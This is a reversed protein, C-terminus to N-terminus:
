ARSSRPPSQRRARNHDRRPKNEPPQQAPKDPSAYVQAVVEDRMARIFRTVEEIDHVAARLGSLEIVLARPEIKAKPLKNLLNPLKTLGGSPLQLVPLTTEPRKIWVGHALANRLSGLKELATKAPKVHPKLETSFSLSRVQMLDEIMTLYEHARTERISLRGEAQNVQLIAYAVHKLEWELRAWRTLIRGIETSYAVPLKKRIPYTPM